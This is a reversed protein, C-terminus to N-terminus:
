SGDFPHRFLSDPLTEVLAPVYECRSNVGYDDIGEEWKSPPVLQVYMHRLSALYLAGLFADMDAGHSDQYICEQVQRWYEQEKNTISPYPGFMIEDMHDLVTEGEQQENILRPGDTMEPLRVFYKFHPPLVMKRFKDPLYMEPLPCGHDLAKQIGFLRFDNKEVISSDLAVLYFAADKIDWGKQAAFTDCYESTIATPGGEWIQFKMLYYARVSDTTIGQPLRPHFGYFKIGNRERLNHKLFCMVDDEKEIRIEVIHLGSKLKERTSAHTVQIEVVLYDSSNNKPILCVDAVYDHSNVTIRKELECREYYNKLDFSYDKYPTCAADM